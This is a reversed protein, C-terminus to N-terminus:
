GANRLSCVMGLGDDKRRLAQIGYAVVILGMVFLFYYTMQVHNSLVQMATFLATM